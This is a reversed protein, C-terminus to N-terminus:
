GFFLHRVWPVYAVGLLLGLHLTLQAVLPVSGSRVRHFTEALLLGIAFLLVVPTALVLASLAGAIVVAAVRDYRRELAPMSFARFYLESLPLLLMAVIVAPTLTTLDLYPRGLWPTDPAYALYGVTAALLVLGLGIGLPVQGGGLLVEGPDFGRSRVRRVAGIMLAVSLTAFFAARVDNGRVPALLSLPDDFVLLGYVGAAVAAVVLSVLLTGYLHGVTWLQPGEVMEITTVSEIRSEAILHAAVLVLLLLLWPLNGAFLLALLNERELAQRLALNGARTEGQSLYVLGLRRLDAATAAPARGGRLQIAEEFADAAVQLEGLAWSARGLLSKIEPDDRRGSIREFARLGERANAADGLELRLRAEALRYDAALVETDIAERYLTLARPYDGRAQALRASEFAVRAAFEQNPRSRLRSRAEALASAAEALRGEELAITALLLVPEPDTAGSGGRALREVTQLRSAAAAHEGLGLEIRALALMTDRSDPDARLATLCSQRATDLDGAAEFRLCQRYYTDHSFSQALASGCVATLLAVVLRLVLRPARRRPRVPLLSLPSRM